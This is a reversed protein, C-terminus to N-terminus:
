GMNEVLRVTRMRSAEYPKAKSQKKLRQQRIQFRLSCVIPVNPRTFLIDKRLPEFRKNLNLDKFDFCHSFLSHQLCRFGLKYYGFLLSNRHNKILYVAEFKKSCMCDVQRASCFIFINRQELPPSIRSVFLPIEYIAAAVVSEIFFSEVQSINRTKWRACDDQQSYYLALRTQAVSFNQNQQENTLSVVQWAYYKSM